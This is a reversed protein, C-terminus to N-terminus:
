AAIYKKKVDPPRQSMRKSLSLSKHNQDFFFNKLRELM